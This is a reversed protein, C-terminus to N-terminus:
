FMYIAMCPASGNSTHMRKLTIEVMHSIIYFFFYFLCFVVVCVSIDKWHLSILGDQSKIVACILKWQLLFITIKLNYPNQRTM